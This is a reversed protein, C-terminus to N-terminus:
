SPVQLEVVLMGEELRARVPSLGGMSAPLGIHRRVTGVEIVLEEGKKFLGVEGKEAFPAHLRVEYHGNRKGFSYPRETRIVRAPDERGPFMERALERIRELGLVEHRFLPVCRMPVPDFYTEIEKLSKEQTHRWERVFPDEVDAPLVRNVLVQDVTLGHLSFYVFARQTERVVMKEANTVLRVSTVRPDELAEDIGEIKDFLDKVAAFYSDPPLEFPAVRNAIPRVAKLLGRQVPFVHQMYWKMTTPMSVFRLSEGTPACDLVIVDYRGEKQWQNVYLLASLEEMGPFIAMEEAEVESLGSTHLLSSIYSWIQHWNKKIETQINVEHIWLREAVRFPEATRRDFLGSEMDFADALSHAPDVSMVLTRYGLEALRTGTAASLSTKGVGGKGSFLLIRM